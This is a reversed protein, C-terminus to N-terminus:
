HPKSIDSFQSKNEIRLVKELRHLYKHDKSKDASLFSLVIEQALSPGIVRAGLCLMNLSDHEVSQHASYTDHCVSAYVGKMKNGTICVGVGSGCMAIARDAKGNQLLIGAKEVYDPYDVSDSNFTGVDIIEHGSMKVAEIVVDKLPFGGHDCAIVVRMTFSRRM